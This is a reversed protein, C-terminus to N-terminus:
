IGCWNMKNLLIERDVTDFAMKLDLFVVANAYGCDIHFAWSYTVELPATVNSHSSWFGSQYKSIIEESKLLQIISRVMM